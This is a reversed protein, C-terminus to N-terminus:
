KAFVMKQTQTFQGAKIQYIYMGTAVTQGSQNRGTWEVTHSSEGKSENLLERVQRGALDYIVIRVNETRPLQFSITTSPNFANPYNQDLEFAGPISSGAALWDEVGTSASRKASIPGASKTMNFSDVDLVASTAFTGAKMNFGDTVNPSGQGFVISCILLALCVASLIIKGLQM